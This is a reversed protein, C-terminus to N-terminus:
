SGTLWYHWITFILVPVDYVHSADTYSLSCSCIETFDRAVKEETHAYPHSCLHLTSTCCSDPEHSRTLLDAAPCAHSQLLKTSCGHTLMCMVLEICVSNDDKLNGKRYVSVLPILCLHSIRRCSDHTLDQRIAGHVSFWTFSKLLSSKVLHPLFIRFLGFNNCM